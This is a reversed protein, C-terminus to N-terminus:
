DAPAPEAEVGDVLIRVGCWGFDTGGLACQSEASFHVNILSGQGAVVAVGQGSLDVYESFGGPNIAGPVLPSAADQTLVVKFFHVGGTLVRLTQVGIEGESDQGDQAFGNSGMLGTLLVFVGLGAIRMNLCIRM